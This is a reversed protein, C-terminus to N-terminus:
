SRHGARAAFGKGIEFELEAQNRVENYLFESNFVKETELRTSEGPGLLSTADLYITSLLGAGSIHYDLTDVSDTLLLRSFPSYEIQFAGNHNPKKARGHLSDAASRYVVLDELSILNGARTEGYSSDVDGMSYIYRATMRLNEFPNFKALVKSTPLKTTGHYGGDLSDLTISRGFFTRTEYGQPQGADTLVTSNNLERYGQELTLNLTPLNFQLGGRYENATYGWNTQLLFENGTQGVTTYGPGAGSNRSYGFYPVIKRNPFLRLDVNSMRYNVNLNHPAFLSGSGLLPNALSSIYNFYNVTRYSAQLQYLDMRGVNFRLTNFPDGWNNLSLDLKDFLGSGPTGRMTVYSNLLRV